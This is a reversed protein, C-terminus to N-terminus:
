LMTYTSYVHVKALMAYCQMVYELMTYCQMVNCLM